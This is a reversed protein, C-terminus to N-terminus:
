WPTSSIPLADVQLYGSGTCGSQIALIGPLLICHIQHQAFWRLLISPLIPPPQPYIWSRYRRPIPSFPMSPFLYPKSCSRINFCFLSDTDSHCLFAKFATVLAPWAVRRRVIFTRRAASHIRFHLGCQLTCLFGLGLVLHLRPREPSRRSEAEVSADLRTKCAQDLAQRAQKLEM